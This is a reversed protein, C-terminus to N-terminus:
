FLQDVAGLLERAQSQFYVNWPFGDGTPAHPDQALVWELDSEFGSRNGQTYYYYKARGWPFLLRNPGTETAIELYEASRQRDGGFEEPIAIGIRGGEAMAQYFDCPFEHQDDKERWYTDPFQACVKRVGERIAEHDENVTFEM